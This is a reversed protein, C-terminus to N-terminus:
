LNTKYETIMAVGRSADSTVGASAYGGVDRVVIDGCLVGLRCIVTCRCM